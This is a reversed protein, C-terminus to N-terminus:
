DQLAIPEPPDKKLNDSGCQLCRPRAQLSFTGGCRCPGAREILLSEEDSMDRDVSRKRGCKECYLVEYFFGGGDEIEFDRGCQQCVVRFIEGM